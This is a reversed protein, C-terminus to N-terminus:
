QISRLYVVIQQLNENTLAPNGGKPPMDVGRTNDPHTAPRGEILFQVIGEDTQSEVFPNNHLNKGLRPMGEANQGHCVACTRRFQVLGQAAEESTTSGGGGGCAIGSLAVGALLVLGLGAVVRMKVMSRPGNTEFIERMSSRRITNKEGSSAGPVISLARESCIMRYHRTEDFGGAFGV